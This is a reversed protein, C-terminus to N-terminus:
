HRIYERIFAFCFYSTPKFNRHQKEFDEWSNILIERTEFKGFIRFKNRKRKQGLVATGNKGFCDRELEFPRQELLKIEKELLGSM